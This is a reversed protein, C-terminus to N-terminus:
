PKRALVLLRNSATHLTLDILVDIRDSEIRKKVADDDMSSIDIWVDACQRHRATIEDARGVDSYCIIEFQQHDHNELVPTMLRGVPHERFDPSLYGVRLRRDSFRDNSFPRDGRMLPAACASNWKLHENLIERAGVGEQGHMALLLNDWVRP